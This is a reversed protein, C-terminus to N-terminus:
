SRDKAIAAFSQKTDTKIYCKSKAKNHGVNQIMQEFIISNQIYDRYIHIEKNFLLVRITLNTYSNPSNLYFRNGAVVNNM